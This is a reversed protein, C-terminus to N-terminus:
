RGGTGMWWTRWRCRRRTSTSTSKRSGATPRFRRGSTGQHYFLGVGVLPLGLDSASKLHDGALVGLGGSYNPLCEALAFELSFYAIM